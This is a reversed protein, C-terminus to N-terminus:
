TKPNPDLFMEECETDILRDIDIEPPNANQSHGTSHDIADHPQEGLRSNFFTDMVAAVGEASVERSDTEWFRGKSASGTIIEYSPFYDVWDFRRVIKDACARLISKSSVSSVMVHRDEATAVLSVPSITLLIRAKPNIRHIIEIAQHLDEYCEQYDFNHFCHLDKKYDGAVTGPCVPYTHGHESNLWAETLGMTFVFVSMEKLMEGVCQLHFQRDLRASETTSFGDPIARPRLLDIVKGDPQQAFDEIVNKEGIAQQLLELLQRNTYINGYRASFKSYSEKADATLLPHPREQQILNGGKAQLHKSFHQAFCSGATVFRDKWVFSFKKGVDFQHHAAPYNTIGSRWFQHPPLHNYPHMM